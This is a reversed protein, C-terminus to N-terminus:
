DPLRYRRYRWSGAENHKEILKRWIELIRIGKCVVNVFTEQDMKKDEQKQYVSFTQFAMKAGDISLKNRTATPSTVLYHNDFVCRGSLKPHAKMEALVEASVGAAARVWKQHTHRHGQGYHALCEKRVADWTGFSAYMSTAVTIKQWCTSWRVTNNEVDHKAVNWRFRAERDEDDPYKVVKVSLGVNFVAILNAPWPDGHPTTDPNAEWAKLCKVLACVTALGDDVLKKNDTSEADLVQVDCTVSM